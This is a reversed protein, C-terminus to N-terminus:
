PVKRSPDAMKIENLDWFWEAANFHEDYFAKELRKKHM